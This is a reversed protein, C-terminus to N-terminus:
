VHLEHDPDDRHPPLRLDVVTTYVDHFLSSLLPFLSIM